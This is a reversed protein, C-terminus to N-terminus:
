IALGSRCRMTTQLGRSQGREQWQDPMYEIPRSVPSSRHRENMSRTPLTSEAIRYRDVWSGNLLARNPHLPTSVMPPRGVRGLSRTYEKLDIFEQSSTDIENGLTVNGEFHDVAAQSWTYKLPPIVDPKKEIQNQIDQFNRDYSIEFM